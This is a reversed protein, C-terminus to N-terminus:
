GKIAILSQFHLWRTTPQIIDFGAERLYHLTQEYRDPWMSNRLAKTKADIEEQTYGNDRRFQHYMEDFVGECEPQVRDKTGLFLVGGDRLLEGCMQFLSYKREMPIFQCLHTMNVVQVAIDLRTVDLADFKIGTVWPVRRELKDLMPQSNDIAIGHYDQPRRDMPIQLQNCLEVFFAGTSSGLDMITIPNRSYRFFQRMFNVHVQHMQYYLPISREAMNDFIEAVEADFEFIDRRKPIHVPEQRDDIVLSM